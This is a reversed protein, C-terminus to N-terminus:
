TPWFVGVVAGVRMLLVVSAAAWAGAWIWPRVGPAAAEDAEARVREMVRDAFGAPVPTAQKNELWADYENM